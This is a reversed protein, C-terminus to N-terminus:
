NELNEEIKLDKLLKNKHFKSKVKLSICMKTKDEKKILLNICFNIHNNLYRFKISTM